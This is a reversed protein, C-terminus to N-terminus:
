QNKDTNEGLSSDLIRVFSIRGAKVPLSINAPPYDNSEILFTLRHEKTVDLDEKFFVLTDKEFTGLFVYTLSDPNFFESQISIDPHRDLFKISIGLSQFERRITRPDSRGYEKLLRAKIKEMRGFTFQVMFQHMKTENSLQLTEITEYNKNIFANIYPFVPHNENDIYAAGPITPGLGFFTKQEFHKVHLPVVPLIHSIKQKVINKGLKKDYNEAVDIQVYAHGSLHSCPQEVLGDGKQDNTGSIFIINEDNLPFDATNDFDVLRSVLEVHHESGLRTDKIQESGKVVMQAFPFVKMIQYGVNAQPSGFISGALSVMRFNINAVPEYTAYQSIFTYLDDHFESDNDRELFFKKLLPYKKPYRDTSPPEFKSESPYITKPDLIYRKFIAKRKEVESYLRKDILQLSRNHRFENERQYKISQIIGYIDIAYVLDNYIPDNTFANFETGFAHMFNDHIRKFQYLGAVFQLGILVGQSYGILVVDNVPPLNKKFRLLNEQQIRWVIEPIVRTSAISYNETVLGSKESLPYEPSNYVICRYPIGMSEILEGLNGFHREQPITHGPVMFGPISLVMTQSSSDNDAIPRLSDDEAQVSICFLVIMQMICYIFLLKKYLRM